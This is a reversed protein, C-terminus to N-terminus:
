NWRRRRATTASRASRVLPALGPVRRQAPLQLLGTCESARGTGPPPPFAANALVVGAGTSFSRSSPKPFCSQPMKSPRNAALRRREFQQVIQPLEIDIVQTWYDRPVNIQCGTGFERRWANAIVRNLVEAMRSPDVSKKRTASWTRSSRGDARSGPLRGPRHDQQRGAADGAADAHPELLGDEGAHRLQHHGTREPRHVHSMKGSARTYGDAMYAATANTRSLGLVHHRRSQFCIRFQCSRPVSLASPMARYRADAPGKVFAEETTMRTM